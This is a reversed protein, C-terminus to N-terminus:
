EGPAGHRESAVPLEVVFSSGEGEVSSVSITGGLASVLGQVIFLGLGTGGTQGERASSDARYFKTFIRQREFQPIGVGQDVVRLVATAGRKAAGITVRGGDPSFKLANDILNSLIQRLKDSDTQLDIPETPLDVVFEHGNVPAAGRYADVVESVLDRLDVRRVQVQLDGADLRAVNLLKDVIAALREAESAIYGLFTRREAEEFAVDERLLTAAFGYISTLPGRLEHSVTSVFDSRMQEVVREASIDRFAFIRGAVAGTPDRMVAETLSLWVEDDGRRVSVLRDGAPAEAESELERQLVQVPTRGLAEESPVGTIGEAAANWLVVRGERDVAVIGDAVNALIAV